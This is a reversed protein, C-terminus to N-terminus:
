RYAALADAVTRMSAAAEAARRAAPRCVEEKVVYGRACRAMTTLARREAAVDAKWRAFLGQRQIRDMEAELAACDVRQGRLAEALGETAGPAQCLKWLVDALVLPFLRTMTRYRPGIAQWGRAVGDPPWFEYSILFVDPDMVGGARAPPDQYGAPQEPPKVGERLFALRRAQDARPAGSEDLPIATLTAALPGGEFRIYLARTDFILPAEIAGEVWRGEFAAEKGNSDIFRGRPVEGADEVVIRMGQADGAGEFAGLLAEARAAPPASPAPPAAGGQQAPAPGPGLATLAAALAPLIARRIARIAPM